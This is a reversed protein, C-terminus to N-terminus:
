LPTQGKSAIGKEEPMQLPWGEENWVYQYGNKRRVKTGLDPTIILRESLVITTPQRLCRCQWDLRRSTWRLMLKM